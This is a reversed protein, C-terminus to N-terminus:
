RGVGQFLESLRVTGPLMMLLGALMMLYTWDKEWDQITVAVCILVYGLVALVIWFWTKRQYWVSEKPPIWHNELIYKLARHALVGGAVAILRIWFGIWGPEFNYYLGLCFLFSAAGGILLTGLVLFRSRQRSIWEQDHLTRVTDSILEAAEEKALPQEIRKSHMLESISLDLSRALPELLHIDPFGVGREWRSVAKATVHLKEALEAQSLGLEKRREQVFSGFVQADM